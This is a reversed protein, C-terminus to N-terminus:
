LTALVTQASCSSQPDPPPDPPPAAQTPKCIHKQALKWDASEVGWDAAWREVSSPPTLGHHGLKSHLGLHRQCVTGESTIWDFPPPCFAEPCGKLKVKNCNSVNKQLGSTKSSCFGFVCLQNKSTSATLQMWLRLFNDIYTPRRLAVFIIAFVCHSVISM